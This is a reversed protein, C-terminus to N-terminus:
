IGQRRPYVFSTTVRPVHVPFGVEAGIAGMRDALREADKLRKTRRADELAATARDRAFVKGGGVDGGLRGERKVCAASDGDSNPPPDTYSSGSLSRGAEGVRGAVTDDFVTRADAPTPMPADDEDDESESDSLEDGAAAAVTAHDAVLRFTNDGGRGRVAPADDGPSARNRVSGVGGIVGTGRVGNGEDGRWNPPPPPPPPARAPQWVGRSAQARMCALGSSRRM